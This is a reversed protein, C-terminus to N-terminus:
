EHCPNRCKFNGGRGRDGRGSEAPGVRGSWGAWEKNQIFVSESSPERSQVLHRSGTVRLSIVRIAVPEAAPESKIGESESLMQLHSPYGAGTGVPRM